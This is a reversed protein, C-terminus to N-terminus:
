TLILMWEASSMTHVMQSCYFFMTFNLLDHREILLAISRVAKTDSQKKVRSCQVHAPGYLFHRHKFNIQYYKLITSHIRENIFLV